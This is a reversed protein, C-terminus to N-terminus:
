LFFNFQYQNHFENLSKNLNIEHIMNNIYICTIVALPILIIM